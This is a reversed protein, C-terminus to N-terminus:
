GEPGQELYAQLLAKADSLPMRRLPHTAGSLWEGLDEIQAPAHPPPNDLVRVFRYGGVQYCALYSPRKRTVWQGGSYEQAQLDDDDDDDEYHGLPQAPEWVTARQQRLHFGRLEALGQEILKQLVVNKLRDQALGPKRVVFPRAPDFLRKAAKDVEWLATAINEPSLPSQPEQEAVITGSLLYRFPTPRGPLVMGAM